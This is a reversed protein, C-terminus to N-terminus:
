PAGIVSQLPHDQPILEKHVYFSVKDTKSRINIFPRMPDLAPELNQLPYSRYIPRALWDYTEFQFHIKQLSNWIIRGVYPRSIYQLLVTTGVSFSILTGALVAKGAVPVQNHNLTILYPTVSCTLVCSSLSIWKLRRLATVFPGKYVTTTDTKSSFTRFARSLSM